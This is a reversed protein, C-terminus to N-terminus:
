VLRLKISFWAYNCAVKDQEPPAQWFTQNDHAGQALAGQALDYCLNLIKTYTQVFAVSCKIVLSTESKIM